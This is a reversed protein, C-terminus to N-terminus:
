KRYYASEFGDADLILGDAWSPVVTMGRAIEEVTVEESVELVIEDHVHAVICGDGSEDFEIRCIAEALLDRAIGQVINEVFKPGWSEHTEWTGGQGRGKYSVVKGFRGDVVKPQIYSLKRGSPLRIFLICYRGEVEIRGCRITQMKEVARKAARDIDWWFRVIRPNAARWSKKLGELEEEKLGYDAAHMVKLAGPGGGYGLALEAIKGKQRLEANIGHKEVPVGFMATASAAYIDGGNRFVKERWKEGALWALVRAEIASYDCVIFKKGEAPIFATRILDSLVEMTIPCSACDASCGTDTDVKMSAFVADRMEEINETKGRPLNHLQVLQGSWRGTRSGGYFRFMGRVRGDSCVCQEITQYKTVSTMGLQQYIGLAERVLEPERCAPPAPCGPNVMHSRDPPASRSYLNTGAPPASRPPRNTQAQDPSLPVTGKPGVGFDLLAQVAEKDLSEAVVGMEELWEKMQAPSNPNELGTIERLRRDLRGRIAMYARGAARVFVMDARIGRDNIMQDAVYEEWLKEPPTYKALRRRIEMETEVDRRNYERFAAWAELELAPDTAPPVCFLKILDEGTELKQKELKLVEGVGALSMPLGCYGSWVMTCRWGAPHLFKGEGLVGYDRLYRSLCVREFAANFAYKEVKPDVLAALIEAPLGEGDALDFVVAPGGDVSCGFLLIRFDPAEAYRYIGCESLNASSYTEIDIALNKM